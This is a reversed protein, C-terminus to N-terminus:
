LLPKLYYLTDSAASSHVETATKKFNVRWVDNVANVWIVTISNSSKSLEWTGHTKNGVLSTFLASGDPNFKVAGDKPGKFIKHVTWDAAITPATATKGAEIESRIGGLESVLELKKGGSSRLISEIRAIATKQVPELAKSRASDYQSWLLATKPHPQLVPEGALKNKLQDTILDAGATDGTQVLGATIVVASAELKKNVPELVQAVKARYDSAIDKPTDALSSTVFLTCVAIAPLHVKM